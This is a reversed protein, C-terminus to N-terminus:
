GNFRLFTKWLDLERVIRCIEVKEDKSLKGSDNEVWSYYISNIWVIAYFRKEKYIRFKRSYPNKHTPICFITFKKVKHKVIKKEM